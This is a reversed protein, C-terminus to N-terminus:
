HPKVTASQAEPQPQRPPPDSGMQDYRPGFSNSFYFPMTMRCDVAVGNLKAPTFRWKLIASVAAEGFQVDDARVIFADAVRGDGRVTFAVFAMGSLAYNMGSPFDPEVRKTPVPAVDVNKVTHEGPRLSPLPNDVARESEETFTMCGALAVMEAALLFWVKPRCRVPAMM